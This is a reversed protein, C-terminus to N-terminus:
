HEKLYQIFQNGPIPKSFYYGQLYECDLEKLRHIQEETEVGEMVVKKGLVKALQFTNKLVIYAKENKMSTWLISKDIKIYKFPLGYISKLNSYGTGYDDMSFAFGDETLRQM